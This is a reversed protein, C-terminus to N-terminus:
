DPNPDIQSGAIGGVIAGVIAGPPGFLLGGTVAGGGAGVLTNRGRIDDKKEKSLPASKHGNWGRATRTMMIGKEGNCDICAPKLNRLYNTGGKAVPKSHDVHWAGKKGRRGYNKFSLKKRCIHCQGHTKDYIANLEDDSFARRNM